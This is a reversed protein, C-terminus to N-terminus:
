KRIEWLRTLQENFVKQVEKEMVDDGTEGGIITDNTIEQLTWAHRFWCRDSEFYDPTLHLPRGLGNFYCVVQPACEYVWGITPVDLKWEDVRLHEGKGGEQQLCLIDLWAYEARHNLMEIRILDRNGDKLMPVPWEYRNIPTKADVHDKENVWAHSIGWMSECAVWYPVGWNTYLDWVRWPNVGGGQLGTM